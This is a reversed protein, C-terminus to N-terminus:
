QSRNPGPSAAIETWPLHAPRRRSGQRGAPDDVHGGPVALEPGEEDSALDGAVGNSGAEHGGELLEAGIGNAEGTHAPVQHTLFAQLRDKGHFVERDHAQPFQQRMYHFKHHVQM